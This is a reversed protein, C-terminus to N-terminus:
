YETDNGDMAQIYDRILNNVQTATQYGYSTVITRVGQETMFGYDSLDKNVWTGATGDYAIVQGDQVNDYTASDTEVFIVPVNMEVSTTGGIAHATLEGETNTIYLKTIGDEILQQIVDADNVINIITNPKITYYNQSEYMGIEIDADITENQAAELMLAFSDDESFTITVDETTKTAAGSHEVYLKLNPDTTHYQIRYEVGTSLASPVSMDDLQDYLGILVRGTTTGSIHAATKSENWTITLVNAGGRTPFTAFETLYNWPIKCTYPDSGDWDTGIKITGSAVAGPMSIIGAEWVRDLANVLSRFDDNSVANESVGPSREVEILFPATSIIEGSSVFCLDCRCYGPCTSTQETLEVTIVGNADVTVLSRGLETDISSSDMLVGTGDPKEERFLVTQEAGPIYTRDGQIVTAKIFRTSSDGQKVTVVPIEGSPILHLTINYVYEM